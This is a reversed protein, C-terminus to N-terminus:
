KEGAKRTYFLGALGFLTVGGILYYVMNIGSLAGSTDPLKEPQSDKIPSLDPLSMNSKPYLYVDNVFTEGVKFPLSVMVPEMPSKVQDNSHEIVEYVGRDLQTFEAKGQDDTVLTSVFAEAGEAKVYNGNENQRMRTITYSVGPIPSLGEDLNSMERGDHTFTDEGELVQYKEIHISYDLTNEAKADTISTFVITLLIFFFSGIRIKKGM